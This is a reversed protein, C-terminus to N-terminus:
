NSRWRGAPRLSLRRSARDKADVVKAEGKRVTMAAIEAPATLEIEQQVGSLLVAM